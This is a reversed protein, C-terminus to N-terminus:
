EQNFGIPNSNLYQIFDYNSVREDISRHDKCVEERFAEIHNFDGLLILSDGERLTDDKGPNFQIEQEESPNIAIIIVSYNQRINAESLSQDILDSGKSIKVEDFIYDQAPGGLINDLFQDVNPRLIVNAMRDAGIEYPSVVKNAGARIIKRRNKHENTRTLIFLDPNLDRATLTVFINDQDRTLSGVIGKAKKIGAKKLIDEEQADGEIYLFNSERLEKIVEEDNDIIVTPVSAEDLVHAIRQGIRGYGAIIYHNELSNIQQQMAKTRFIESEFLLKTTQTAIYSIIGIGLVFISMTFIRGVTSLETVETFGITTITIFTMYLGDFLSIDEIFFYGLSGLSFVIGLLATAIAIRQVIVNYTHNNFLNLM